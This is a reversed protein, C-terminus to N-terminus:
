APPAPPPTEPPAAMDDLLELLDVTSGQSAPNESM